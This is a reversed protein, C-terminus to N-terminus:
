NTSNYSEHNSAQSTTQQDLATHLTRDPSKLAAQVRKINLFIASSMPLKVTEQASVRFRYKGRQTSYFTFYNLTDYVDPIGCAYGILSRHLRTAAIAM